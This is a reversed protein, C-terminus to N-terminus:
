EFGWEILRNAIRGPDPRFAGNRWAAALNEVVAERSRLGSAGTSLALLDGGDHIASADPGSVASATERRRVEMVPTIRPTNEVRM